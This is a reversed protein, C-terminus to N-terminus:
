NLSIIYHLRSAPCMRMPPSQQWWSWLLLIIWMGFWTHLIRPHLGVKPLRHCRLFTNEFILPPAPFCNQLLIETFYGSAPHQTQSQIVFRSGTSDSLNSLMVLWSRNRFYTSNRTPFERTKEEYIRGCDRGSCSCSRGVQTAYCSDTEALVPFRSGM